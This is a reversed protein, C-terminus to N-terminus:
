VTLREVQYLGPIPRTQESGHHMVRSIHTWLGMAAEVEEAAAETSSVAKMACTLARRTPAHVSAQLATASFHADLLAEMWTVARKLQEDGFRGLQVKILDSDDVASSLGRVTYAFVRLLIACTSPSLIRIAESLLVASFAATRQIVAEVIARLVLVRNDGDTAVAETEVVVTKVAKGKKGKGKTEVVASEVVTTTTTGTGWQIVGGAVSVRNQFVCLTLM